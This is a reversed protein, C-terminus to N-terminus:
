GKIEATTKPNMARPITVAKKMAAKKMAVRMTASAMVRSSGWGVEFYGGSLSQGCLPKGSALSVAM